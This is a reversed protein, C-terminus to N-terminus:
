RVNLIFTVRGSGERIKGCRVTGIPIKTEKRM